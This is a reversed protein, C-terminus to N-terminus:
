ASIMKRSATALGMLGLTGLGLLLEATPEPVTQIIDVKLKVSCKGTSCVVGGTVPNYTTNFNGASITVPGSWVLTLNGGGTNTFTGTITASVSGTGVGPLTQHITVSLTAGAAPCSAATCNVKLTGFPRNLGPSVTVAPNVGAYTIFSAGAVSGSTTYKVPVAFAMCPLLLLIAAILTMKKTM